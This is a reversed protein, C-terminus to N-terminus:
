SAEGTIRAVARTLVDRAISVSKGLLQPHRASTWVTEDSLLADIPVSVVRLSGPDAYRLLSEHRYRGGMPSAELWDHARSQSRVGMCRMGGVETWCIVTGEPLADLREATWASM